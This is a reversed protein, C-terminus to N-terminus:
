DAARPAYEYIAFQGSEWRARVNAAVGLDDPKAFRHDLLVYRVHLDKFLDPIPRSIRPTIWEFRRLNGCHGGWVVPRGSAYCVFDAYMYPLVFVAGPELTALRRAADDLSDPVSVTQETSRRRITICFFAIAVVSVIVCSITLMGLPRLFGSVTGIGAAITYAIPFIAAKMYARGPGFARLPPVVTAVVALVVLTMAWWYLRASWAGGTYPVLPLTLLFPNEGFLRILQQMTNRGLFGPRQPPTRGARDGGGVVPSDHVPHAGYWGRNRRWYDLAFVYNQIVRVMHGRSMVFAVALGAGALAIYWPDRFYLTFTACVVVLATAMAASSLFLLGASLTAVAAWLPTPSFITFKFMALITFSHLLSGFPRASLSRTESILHPTFAYTAAAMAAVAVNDTMRFTVWYLLLLHVCDILPSVAWYFRRLWARPILALLMPFFPPYSQREDQLLYQPLRVDFSPRRRVADAYALYYWTDVGGPTRGAHVIVRLGFALLAIAAGTLWWTLPPM